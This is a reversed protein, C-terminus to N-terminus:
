ASPSAYKSYEGTSVTEPANPSHTSSSVTTSEIRLWSEATAAAAARITHAAPVRGHM